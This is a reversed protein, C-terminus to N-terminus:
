GSESASWRGDPTQVPLPRRYSPTLLDRPPPAAVVYLDEGASLSLDALSLFILTSDFIPGGELNIEPSNLIAM